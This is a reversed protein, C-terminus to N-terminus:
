RWNPRAHLSLYPLSLAWCPQEQAGRLQEDKSRLADELEDREIEAQRLRQMMAQRATQAAIRGFDAPTVEVDIEDDIQADPKIKRATALDLEEYPAQVSEVVRLSCVAKITAKEPDIDIRLERAPGVSKRSATLLANQLAEIMTSRDIGKEKEFYEFVALLENTM